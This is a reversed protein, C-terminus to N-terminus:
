KVENEYIKAKEEGNLIRQTGEALALMEDEGAYIKVPAIFQVRKSIKECLLSSYAI